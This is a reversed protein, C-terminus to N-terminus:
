VPKKRRSQWGVIPSTDYDQVLHYAVLKRSYIAPKWTIAGDSMGALLISMMTSLRSIWGAGPVNNAIDAEGIAPLFFRGASKVGMPPILRVIPCLQWGSANGSVTGNQGLYDFQKVCEIGGAVDQRKATLRDVYCTQPLLDLYASIANNEFNSLLDNANHIVDGASLNDGEFYLVNEFYESTHIGSIRLQYLEKAM